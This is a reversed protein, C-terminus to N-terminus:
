SSNLLNEPNKRAEGTKVAEATKVQDEKLPSDPSSFRGDRLEQVGVGEIEKKLFRILM